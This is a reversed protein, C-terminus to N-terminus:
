VVEVPKYFSFPGGGGVRELRGTDVLKQLDYRLTRESVGPFVNMLDRLRCSGLEKVKVLLEEQRKDATDDPLKREIISAAAQAPAKAVKSVPLNGSPKLDLKASQKNVEDLYDELGRLEAILYEANKNDILELSNSLKILVAIRKVQARALLFDQRTVADLLMWSCESFYGAVDNGKLYSALRLLAYSITFSLQDPSINKSSDKDMQRM